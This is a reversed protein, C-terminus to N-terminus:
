DFVVPVSFIGEEIEGAVNNNITISSGSPASVKVVCTLGDRTLTGDLIHLVDGNIPFVPRITATTM